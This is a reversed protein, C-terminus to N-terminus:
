DCTLIPNSFYYFSYGSVLYLEKRQEKRWSGQAMSLLLCLIYPDKRWDDPTVRKVKLNSIRQVSSNSIGRPGRRVRLMNRREENAEYKYFGM